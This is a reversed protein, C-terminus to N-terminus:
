FSESRLSGVTLEYQSAVDEYSLSSGFEVNAVVNTDTLVVSEICKDVSNNFELAFAFIFLLDAYVCFLLDYLYLKFRRFIRRKKDVKV